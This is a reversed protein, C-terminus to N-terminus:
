GSILSITSTVTTASWIRMKSVTDSDVTITMSTRAPSNDDVNRAKRSM